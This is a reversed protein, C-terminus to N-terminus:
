WVQEKGIGQLNPDSFSTFITLKPPKLRANVTVRKVDAIKKALSTDSSMLWKLFQKVHLRGINFHASVDTTEIAEVFHLLSAGNFESM